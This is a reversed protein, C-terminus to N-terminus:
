DSDNDYDNDDDVDDESESVIKIASYSDVVEFGDKDVQNRLLAIYPILKKRRLFDPILSGDKPIKCLGKQFNSVIALLFECFFDLNERFFNDLTHIVTITTVSFLNVGSGNLDSILPLVKSSDLEDILWLLFPYAADKYYKITDAELLLLDAVLIRLDRMKSSNLCVLEVPDLDSAYHKFIMCILRILTSGGM